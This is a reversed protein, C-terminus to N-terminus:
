TKPPLRVPPSKEEVEAQNQADGAAARESTTRENRMAFWAAAGAALAALLFMVNSMGPVLGIIFMVGAVPFWARSLNVQDSIHSAMDHNSSVRTVIIATAISLLLSPIQAVLGDGISLLVYLEAAVGMSLGHQTSGIIM